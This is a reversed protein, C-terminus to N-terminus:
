RTVKVAGAFFHLCGFDRLVCLSYVMWLLLVQLRDGNPGPGVECTQHPIRSHEDVSLFLFVVALFNWYLSKRQRRVFDTRGILWLFVSCLAIVSASYLSPFNAENDFYFAHLFGRLYKFGHAYHLYIVTLNATLL